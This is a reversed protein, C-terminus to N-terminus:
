GEILACHNILDDLKYEKGTELFKFLKQKSWNQYFVEIDCEDPGHWISMDNDEDIMIGIIENDKWYNMLMWELENVYFKEPVEALLNKKTPLKEVGEIFIAISPIVNDKTITKAQNISIENEMLLKTILNM